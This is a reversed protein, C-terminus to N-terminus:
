SDQSASSVVPSWGIRNWHRLPDITRSKKELGGNEGLAERKKEMRPPIALCLMGMASEHAMHHM